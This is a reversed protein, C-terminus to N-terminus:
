IEPEDPAFFREYEYHIWDDAKDPLVVMYAVGERPIVIRTETTLVDVTGNPLHLPALSELQRNDNYDMVLPNRLTIGNEDQSVLEGVFDFGTRNMASMVICLSM